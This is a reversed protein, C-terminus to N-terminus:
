RCLGQMEDICEEKIDFAESDGSTLARMMIIRRAGIVRVRETAWFRRYNREPTLASLYFFFFSFFIYARRFCQTDCISLHNLFCPSSSQLSIQGSLIPSLSPFLWSSLFCRMRVMEVSGVGCEVM